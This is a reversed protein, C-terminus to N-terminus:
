KFTMNSPLIGRTDEFSFFRIEYKTKNITIIKGPINTVVFKSSTSESIEKSANLVDKM